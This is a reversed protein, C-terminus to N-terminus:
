GSSEDDSVEVFDDEPPHGEPVTSHAQYLEHLLQIHSAVAAPVVEPKEDKDNRFGKLPTGGLAVSWEASARKTGKRFVKVRWLIESGVEVWHRQLKTLPSKAFGEYVVGKNHNM